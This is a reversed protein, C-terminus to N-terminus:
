TEPKKTEPDSVNGTSAALMNGSKKNGGNQECVLIAQLRNLM